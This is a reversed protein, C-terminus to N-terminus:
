LMSQPFTTSLWELVCAQVKDKEPENFMEHYLDDWVVLKVLEGPAGKVWQPAVNPDILRDAGSQMLLSPIKLEAARGQIDDIAKTIGVYWGASVKESVLPDDIYDKVVDSDRSVASTDLDSPFLLDPKIRALFRVLLNLIAPPRADPHTGLAPSSLVVGDLQDPHDLAYTLAILGGMSHGLIVLPLGPHQQKAHALMADVDNAYDSFQDVHVRGPKLGDSSKGHGRLDVAYVTWDHAALFQGLGTYRSSHDALGHVLVIVGSPSDAQWSQWFLEVGDSTKLKGNNSM